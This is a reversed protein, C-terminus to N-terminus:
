DKFHNSALVRPSFFNRVRRPRTLLFQEYSPRNARGYTDMILKKFHVLEEKRQRMKSAPAQSSQTNTGKWWSQQSSSVTRAVDLFKRDIDPLDEKQLSALCQIYSPQKLKAKKQPPNYVDVFKQKSLVPLQKPSEDTQQTRLQSTQSAMLIASDLSAKCAVSQSIIQRRADIKSRKSSGLNSPSPITLSQEVIAGIAALNLEPKSELSTKNGRDRVAQQRVTHKSAGSLVSSGEDIQMHPSNRTKTNPASLDGEQLQMNIKKSFAISNSMAKWRKQAKPNLSQFKPKKM